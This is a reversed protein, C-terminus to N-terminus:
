VPNIILQNCNIEERRRTSLCHLDSVGLCFVATPADEGRGYRDTRKDTQGEGDRGSGRRPMEAKGESANCRGQPLSMDREPLPRSPVPQGPSAPAGAGGGHHRGDRGPRRDPPPRSPVPLPSRPPRPGEAPRSPVPASRAPIGPRRGPSRTAPPCIDGM